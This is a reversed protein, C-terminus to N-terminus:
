KNIIYDIYEKFTKNIAHQIANITEKANEDLKNLNKLAQQLIINNTDAQLNLLMEVDDFNIKKEEMIEGGENKNKNKFINLAEGRRKM